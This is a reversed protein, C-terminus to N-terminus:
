LIPRAQFTRLYTTGGRFVQVQWFGKVEILEKVKAELDAQTTEHYSYFKLNEEYYFKEPDKFGIITVNFKEPKSM